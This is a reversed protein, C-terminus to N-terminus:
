LHYNLVLPKHCHPQNQGLSGVELAKGFSSHSFVGGYSHRGVDGLDM